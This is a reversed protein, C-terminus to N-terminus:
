ERVTRLFAEREKDSLADHALRCEEDECAAHVLNTQPQTEGPWHVPHPVKDAGPLGCLGCYDAPPIETATIQFRKGTLHEMEGFLERGLPADFWAPENIDAAIFWEVGQGRFVRITDTRTENM